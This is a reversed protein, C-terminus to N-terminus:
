IDQVFESNGVDYDGGKRKRINYGVKSKKHLKKEELEFIFVYKIGFLLAPPFDFSKGGSGPECRGNFKMGCLRSSGDKWLLASRHM